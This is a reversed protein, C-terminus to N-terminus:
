QKNNKISLLLTAVDKKDAAIACLWLILYPFFIVFLPWKDIINSDIFEGTVMVKNDYTGWYFDVNLSILKTGYGM